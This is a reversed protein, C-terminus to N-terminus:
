LDSGEGVGGKRASYSGSAARERNKQQKRKYAEEYEEDTVGMGTLINGIFHNIDVAEDLIRQRNVFADDTAWPKWSFEYALEALEQYIAFVNWKIYQAVQTLGVPDNNQDVIAAFDHLPYGYVKTQLNLTSELWKWSDAVPANLPDTKCQVGCPCTGDENHFWAAHPCTTCYYGPPYKDAM